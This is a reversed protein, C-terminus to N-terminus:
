VYNIYNIIILISIFVFYTILILFIKAFKVILLSFFIILKIDIHLLLM